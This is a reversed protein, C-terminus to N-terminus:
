RTNLEDLQFQLEDVHVQATELELKLSDRETQARELREALEQAEQLTADREMAADSVKREIESASARVVERFHLCFTNIVAQIDLCNLSIGCVLVGM